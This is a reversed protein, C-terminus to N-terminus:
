AYLTFTTGEGPASVFSIRLRIARALDRILHFGFGTKTNVVDGEQYLARAEDAGIGPGNDTITLVTQGHEQTAKWEIYAGPKNRLAKIADM